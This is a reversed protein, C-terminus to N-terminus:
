KSIKDSIFSAIEKGIARGSFPSTHGLDYFNSEGNNDFMFSLDLFNSNHKLRNRVEKYFLLIADRMDDQVIYAKEFDTAGQKTVVMPQLVFIPKIDLENCIGTIFKVNLLYIEVAKLTNEASYNWVIGQCIEKPIIHRYLFREFFLSKDKLYQALSYRLMLGWKKEILLKLKQSIDGQMNGAGFMIGHSSDNYGDYFVVVSPRKEPITRKLLEQFKILELSSQFSATGFNHVFVEAKKANLNLAIQNAISLKDSTENNQMTSGGFTWIIASAESEDVSDPCIRASYVNSFNLTESQYPPEAFIFYDYYKLKRAPDILAEAHIDKKNWGDALTYWRGVQQNNIQKRRLLFELSGILVCLFFLSVFAFLIFNILCDKIKM